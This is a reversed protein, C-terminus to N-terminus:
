IEWSLAAYGVFSSAIGRELSDGHALLRPRALTGSSRAPLAELCSMTAAVAGASCASRDRSAMALLRETDGDLIADLFFRDNHEHVWKRAEPLDLGKDFGYAPGYHTLDTSAIIAAQGAILRDGVLECLVQGLAVADGSPPVRLAIIKADAFLLPLFPFFVELSNDAVPDEVPQRRLLSAPGEEYLRSLAAYLSDRLSREARIIGAPSEFADAMSFLIPDGPSLHGGLLVLLPVAPSIQLLATLALSGSYTWGAHPAMVACATGRSTHPVSSIFEEVAQRTQPYWGAPLQREQITM